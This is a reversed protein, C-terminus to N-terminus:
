AGAMAELSVPVLANEVPDRAEAARQRQQKADEELPVLHTGVRQERDVVSEYPCCLVELFDFTFQEGIVAQVEAGDDTLKIWATAGHDRLKEPPPLDCPWPHTHVGKYSLQEVVQSRGQVMEGPLEYQSISARGYLLRSGERNQPNTWRGVSIPYVGRGVNGPADTGICECDDILRLGVLEARGEGDMREVDQLLQPVDVFVTMYRHFSGFEFAEHNLVPRRPEAERKPGSAKVFIACFDSKHGVVRGHIHIALRQNGYHDLLRPWSDLHRQEFYESFRARSDRGQDRTAFVSTELERRVASWPRRM